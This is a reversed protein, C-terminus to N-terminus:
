DSIISNSLGYHQVIVNLIIGTLDCTNITSKVPEYHVIKTFWDIIVLILNYSNGKWNTFNLLRAM